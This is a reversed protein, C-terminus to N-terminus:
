IKKFPIISDEAIIHKKHNECAREFSETAYCYACNHLCTNYMGIDKSVMCGCLTRQRGDKALMPIIKGTTTSRFKNMYENLEPDNKSFLSDILEPDICKNRQIGSITAAEACTAPTMGWEKSMALIAESVKIMEEKNPVSSKINDETFLGTKLLNTIAKRYDDLFSFVLKNTYGKLAEGINRIHNIHEEIPMLGPIILIPDYRWIVKEPGIMDSLRKFIDLRKSLNAVNKEIAIPYDNLTFQFYYGIGKADIEPLYKMLPEPNKTWFVIVRTKEFSIKAYTNYAYGENLRNIFWEAYYSPIDTARSASIIVSTQTNM